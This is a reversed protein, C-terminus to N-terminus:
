KRIVQKASNANGDQNSPASITVSPDDWPGTLDYKYSIVNIINKDFLKDTLKDVLLIATGVGLGIPGGAVAGALPLTSSVNPTVTVIQNYRQNVLDTAGSIAIKASASKLMFNDTMALGNKFKFDGTISDFTFGKGFLDSFDLSLRRPLAAISMLGFIRGAAGPEVDQLTGKGINMNMSGTFEALDFDLPNAPWSINAQMSVKEADVAQQYGFNALLKDLDDSELQLKLETNDSVNSKNWQGKLVSLTFIESSLQASNIIWKNNSRTATLNLKGLSNGDLRLSGITFDVNPWLAITKNRKVPKNESNKPRTIALYDLDVKLVASNSLDDPLYIFGKVERSDLNTRWGDADKQSVINLSSLQQDFGKLNTFNLSVDNISNLLATKNGNQQKTWDLWEDISIDNLQGSIKIGNKPLIANGKGFRIEGQWVDGKPRAIANLVDSYKVTYILSNDSNQIAITLPKVQAPQKGLPAPLAITLGKLDSDFDVDLYFKGLEKEVVTLDLNYATRGTIYEPFKGPWVKEIHDTSIHSSASIIAKDGDPKVDITVAENFAMALISKARVGRENFYLKGNVQTMGIEPSAKYKLQSDKFSVYGSVTTNDVNALPVMLELNINSNGKAIASDAVAGFRKKLPSDKLFQLAKATTGKVEGELRLIPEKETLHTIVTTVDVFDFGATKGQKTKITLTNGAGKITGTLGTLDPWGPGYHLQVDLAHLHMTFQGKDPEKEYPFAALEGKLTIEGTNIKGAVFADDSWKKFKPHFKQRPVYKKWQNVEINDLAIKLDNIIKGDAKKKVEGDLQVTLDDNWVRFEKSSVKWKEDDYKVNIDGTVSDFFLSDELWPKPYLTLDHSNLQLRASGKKWEFQGTLNTVGPYDQWPLLVGEKLKFTLETLGQEESYQVNLMELDGAPQLQTIMDPITNSLLAVSSLDSLRLYDSQINVIGNLNKQVTFATEPWDEGNMSLLTKGSLLWSQGQQKWDINAQMSAINVAPSDNNNNILKVHSLTFDTTLEDAQLGMGTASLQGTFKGTPMMIDQWVFDDALSGIQLSTVKAQGHWVGIHSADDNLEAQATFVISDGLSPPLMVNGTSTWKKNHKTITSIILEYQGSLATNIQDIYGIKINEFHFSDLLLAFSKWDFDSKTSATPLNFNQIQFQGSYDRIVALTLDNVAIDNLVAQGSQISDILDLGIYLNGLSILEQKHGEDFLTVDGIQLKPKLGVWDLSAAGVEVPYGVQDSLWTAIEDQREEVANSLWYVGAILLTLIFAVIIM